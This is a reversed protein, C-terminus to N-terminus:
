LDDGESSGKQFNSKSENHLNRETQEILALIRLAQIESRNRSIVFDRAREGVSHESFELKALTQTISNALGRHTNDEVLFVYENYEDPIGPLRYILTPTGSLLYEMLKSPFSYKTFEGCFNRPNVLLDAERQLKLVESRPLQGFYMIRKDRSSAERVVEAAEGAGCIWLRIHDQQILEFAKLLNGIGFAFNLTGTYLVVKELREKREKKRLEPARVEETDVIGEMVIWPRGKLNFYEAMYKTLFVFSDVSDLLRNIIAIDVRKLIQYVLKRNAKLNMYQPLDPCILCVHIDPNITKAKAAAYLFPTHMSYVILTKKKGSKRRAWNMSEKSLSFGRSFQRIGFLNTFGVAKDEVGQIHSWKRSKVFLDKYEKPFVGVFPATLIKISETFENLGKVLSWQVANAAYQITAKSKAIIESEIEKPFLGGLFLIELNDYHKM